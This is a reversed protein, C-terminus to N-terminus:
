KKEGSSTKSQEGQEFASAGKGWAGAKPGWNEAVGWVHVDKLEPPPAERRTDEMDLVNYRTGRKPKEDRQVEVQQAHVPMGDPYRLRLSSPSLVGSLKEEDDLPVAPGM